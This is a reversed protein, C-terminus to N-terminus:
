YKHTKRNSPRGRRQKFHSVLHDVPAYINISPLKISTKVNFSKQKLTNKCYVSNDRYTVAIHFLDVCLCASCYHLLRVNPAFSGQM